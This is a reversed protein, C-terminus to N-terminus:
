PKNLGLVQAIDSVKDVVVIRDSKGYVPAFINTHKRLSDEPAFRAIRRKLDEKPNNHILHIGRCGWSRPIEMDKSDNDGLVLVHKRIQANTMRLVKQLNTFPKEREVIHTEINLDYYGEKEKRKFKEPLDDIKAAPMAIIRKFHKVMRSRKLRARGQNVPADTLLSNTINRKAFEKVIKQIGRFVHLHDHRAKSFAKQAEIIMNSMDYGKVDKFFGDKNLWQILGEHEMTGMATYFQKMAAAVKPEPKGTLEAIKQSMAEYAPVAYELWVWMTNDGDWLAEEIEDVNDFQQIENM